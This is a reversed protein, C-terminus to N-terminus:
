EEGRSLPTKWLISLWDVIKAVALLIYLGIVFTPIYLLPVLLLLWWGFHSIAWVVVVFIIALGLFLLAPAGLIAIYSMGMMRLFSVGEWNFLKFILAAFFPVLLFFVAVRCWSPGILPDTGAFAVYGSIVFAAVAMEKHKIKTWLSERAEAM